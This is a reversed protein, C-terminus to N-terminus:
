VIGASVPQGCGCVDSLLDNAAQRGAQQESKKSQRQTEGGAGCITAKGGSSGSWLLDLFPPPYLSATILPFDFMCSSFHQLSCLNGTPFSSRFDPLRVTYILLWNSSSGTGQASPMCILLLRLKVSGCDCPVAMTDCSGRPLVERAKYCGFGMNPARNMRGCLVATGTRESRWRAELSPGVNMSTRPRIVARWMCLAIVM